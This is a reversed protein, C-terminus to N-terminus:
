AKEGHGRRATAAVHEFYAATALGGTPPCGRLHWALVEWRPVLGAREPGRVLAVPVRALTEVLAKLVRIAVVLGAQLMGRRKRFFRYLGRHYEIRTRGPVKRKSSGGFLHVVHADPIHVVRFGAEHVSWCWDTEELFLFYDEPLLGVKELVERRAFLCAGLVAEVDIPSPIPRRKSPFRGPLLWELLAKPVIETVLSPFNHISNQRRGDPHLLQLGVVGVDPHADLYAVCRDFAGRRVETDTNLLVAYRGKARRLGANNGVAFGLNAPLAVLEVWPHRARVAEVTGDDSGNDVLITQTVLPRAGRPAGLRVEEAIADLGALTLERTNWSLIVISLDTM